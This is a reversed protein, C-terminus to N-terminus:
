APWVHLSLTFPIASSKCAEMWKADVEALTGHLVASMGTWVERQAASSALIDIWRKCTRRCSFLSDMDLYQFVLSMVEVPLKYITASDLKSSLDQIIRQMEATSANIESYAQAIDADQRTEFGQYYCDNVKALRDHAMRTVRKIVAQAEIMAQIFPDGSATMVTDHDALAAQEESAGEM